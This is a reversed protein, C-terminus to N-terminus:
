SRGAVGAAAVWPLVVRDTWAGSLHAAVLGGAGDALWVIGGDFSAELAEGPTRLFAIENPFSPLGIDVVRLGEEHLAVLLTRPDPSASAFRGGLRGPLDIEGIVRPWRPNRGDVVAMSTRGLGLSGVMALSTGQATVDDAAASALVGLGGLTGSALDAHLSRLAGAGASTETWWVVGDHVVASSAMSGPSASWSLGDPVPSTLPSPILELGGHPQVAVLDEGLFALSTTRRSQPRDVVLTPEDM